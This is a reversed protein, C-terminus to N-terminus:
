QCSNCPAPGGEFIANILHVVDSVSIIGTCDVDAQSNPDPFPGGLFIYNVLFVVDSIGVDGSGDADGCLLQYYKMTLFDDHWTSGDLRVTLGATVIRGFRDVNILYPEYAHELDGNFSKDWVLDGEPNFKLMYGGNPSATGEPPQGRCLYINGYGDFSVDTKSSGNTQGIDPYTRSWLIEGESSLKTVYADWYFLSLGGLAGSIVIDDTESIALSYPRPLIGASPSNIINTWIIEGDQSYKFVFAELDTFQWYRSEGLVILDGNTDLAVEVFGDADKAPSNYTRSWLKQGTSDFAVILADSPSDFRSSYGVAYCTGNPAVALNKIYDAGNFENYNRSWLLNGSIDFKSLVIDSNGTSIATIGAVVVNGRDDVVMATSNDNQENGAGIEHRWMESGAEDYRIVLIDSTVQYFGYDIRIDGCSFISGDKAIAVFRGIDDLHPVVDISRAWLADGSRNYKLTAWKRVGESNESMGTVVIDGNAAVALSTAYDSHRLNTGYLRVWGDTLLQTHGLLASGSTIVMCVLMVAFRHKM